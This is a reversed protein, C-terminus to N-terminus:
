EPILKVWLLRYLTGNKPFLSVTCVWIKSVPNKKEFIFYFHFLVGSVGVIPFSSTWNILVSLDVLCIHILIRNEGHSM